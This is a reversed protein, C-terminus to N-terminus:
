MLLEVEPTVLCKVNSLKVFWRESVYTIFYTRRTKGKPMVITFFVRFSHIGLMNTELVIKSLYRGIYSQSRIKIKLFGVNATKTFYFM